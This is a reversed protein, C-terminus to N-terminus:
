RALRAAALGSAVLALVGVAAYIIATSAIAPGLGFKDAAYGVAVPALSGGAWGVTNM